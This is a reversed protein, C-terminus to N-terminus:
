IVVPQKFFYNSSLLFVDPLRQLLLQDIISGLQLLHIDVPEFQLHNSLFLGHHLRQQQFQDLFIIRHLQVIHIDVPELQIHNSPLVEHLFRLQQFRDLLYIRDLQM